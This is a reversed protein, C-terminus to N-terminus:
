RSVILTPTTARRISLRFSLKFKFEIVFIYGFESMNLNGLLITSLFISNM